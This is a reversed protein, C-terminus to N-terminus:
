QFKKRFTMSWLASTLLFTVDNNVDVNYM